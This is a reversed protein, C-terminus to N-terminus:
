PKPRLSNFAQEVPLVRAKARAAELRPYGDAEERTLQEAFRGARIEALVEAMRQRVGADVIRPGGLTAGLEATNSIAERMGAIGREDILDAILKLEGVCEMYAVEASVGAAVLTDFGAILIEPVAGWVVASENFLDAECEEAFTSAILGARACGIARGYALALDRTKGSCDQAVAWLGIMGKGDRYLSRLATGPGKPAVMFVDLDERPVILKFHITLGHSFGLAAGDRIRPEIEHYLGALIEDPALLMVVDASAVAEEVLAVELGHGQAETASSSGGRLAVVVDIGSDHLNLAQARGQNGFGVIAVRKGALPAPDIDADRLLEMLQGISGEGEIPSPQTPTADGTIRMGLGGWGSGEGDLSPCIDALARSITKEGELPETARPWEPPPQHTFWTYQRKAYNRTAQQGRAIAEDRDIEGSLCAAIERVGIARMVPLKPDLARKLLTEVEEIAGHEIMAAFREDCRAYLWDRPPLLVLPRLSIADGIGGQRQHQWEGLTKGTSLVVELARAIRLTDAPNLRGAAEPDLEILRARNAGVEAARVQRRVAPDIPPVPAIGDLLTRLYMGTGGVLIPLRGQAHVEDIEGRAMAAWDAASCPTAGDLVGYLRHEARGLEESTPAASLVKLDRYLQASDANVIVGGTAESLALALGSKGSATPGAILAVPPRTPM